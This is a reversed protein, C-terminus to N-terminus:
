CMSRAAMPRLHRWDRSSNYVDGVQQWAQSHTAWEDEPWIQRLRMDLFAERSYGYHQVAADNVSV